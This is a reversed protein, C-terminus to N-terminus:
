LSVGKKSSFDSPKKTIQQNNESVEGTFRLKGSIALNHLDLVRHFEKNRLIETEKEVEKLRKYEAEMEPLKSEYFKIKEYYEEKPIDLDWKKAREKTKKLREEMEPTIHSLHEYRKKLDKLEDICLRVIDLQKPEIHAQNVYKVRM